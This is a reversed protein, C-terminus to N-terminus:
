QHLAFTGQTVRMATTMVTSTVTGVTKPIKKKISEHRGLFM